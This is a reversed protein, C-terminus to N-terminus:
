AATTSSSSTTAAGSRSPLAIEARRATEVDGDRPLDTVLKTWGDDDHPNDIGIAALSRKLRALHQPWRFPRRAYVPVVEYIGDGFIFGRDLVPVRAEEIPMFEGNLYATQTM